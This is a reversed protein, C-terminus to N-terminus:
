VTAKTPGNKGPTSGSPPSPAPISPPSVKFIPAPTTKSSKPQFFALTKDIWDPEVPGFRVFVSTYKRDIERGFSPLFGMMGYDIESPEAKGMSVTITGFSGMRASAGWFMYTETEFLEDGFGRIMGRMSPTRHWNTGSLQKDLADVVEDINKEIVYLRTVQNAVTSRPSKAGAALLWTTTQEVKEKRLEAGNLARDIPQLEAYRNSQYWLFGATGALVLSFITIAPWIKM